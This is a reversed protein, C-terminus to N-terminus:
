HPCLAVNNNGSEQRGQPQVPDAIRKEQFWSTPPGKAFLSHGHIGHETYFVKDWEPSDFAYLTDAFHALTLQQLTYM